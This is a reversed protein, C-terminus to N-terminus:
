EDNNCMFKKRTNGSKICRLRQLYNCSQNNENKFNNNKMAIECLDVTQRPVYNLAYGNQKVAEKIIDKNKTKIYKLALGDQKVAQLYIDDINGFELMDFNIYKISNGNQAIAQMIMERDPFQVHEIMMGDMNIAEICLARTPNSLLSFVQPNARICKLLFEEDPKEICKILNKDYKIAIEVINKTRMDFFKILNIDRQIADICMEETLEDLSKIGYLKSFIALEIEPTINKIKDYKKYGCEIAFLELKPNYKLMEYNSIDKKILAKCVNHINKDLYKYMHSSLGNEIALIQIDQTKNKVFRIYNPTIKIIEIVINNTHHKIDSYNRLGNKIALICRNETQEVYKINHPFLKIATNIINETANPIDLFINNPRYELWANHRDHWKNIEYRNYYNPYPGVYTNSAMPGRLNYQECLIDICFQEDSLDIYKVLKPFDTLLKGLYKPTKKDEPLYKIYKMFKNRMCIQNLLTKEHYINDLKSLDFDQPFESNNEMIKLAEKLSLMNIIM